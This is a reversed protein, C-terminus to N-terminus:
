VWGFGFVAGEVDFMETESREDDSANLEPDYCEDDRLAAQATECHLPCLYTGEQGSQISCLHHVVNKCEASPHGCRHTELNDGKQALCDSFSCRYATSADV